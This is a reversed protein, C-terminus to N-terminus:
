EVAPSPALFSFRESARERGAEADALDIEALYAEELNPEVPDGALAEGPRALARVRIGELTRVRTTIRYRRSFEALDADSVVAHFVRGRAREGLAEPTGDFRLQGRHLLLIRSAAAEVDSAIHTSFLVIRQAAQELLIQRFRARSEVDLGTTPEDVVLIPPSGLLARAIGVRQRMGGSFDRVKRGAHESLGVAALLREIEAARARADDIGREAAWHDLFQAATLEPYANFEQPLFGIQRRYDVLNEPTVPVGRFLVDGRTPELLGTLIRLLTTKGAGNPGLLGVIGPTLEFRVASLARLGGRGGRGRYIRTVSRAELAPLGPEQWAPPHERRRVEEPHRWREVAGRALLLLAPALLVSSALAAAEAVAAVRLPTVWRLRLPDLGLTALGPGLLAPVGALLWRSQGRVSRLLWAPRVLPAVLTGELVAPLALALGAALGLVTLEDVRGLSASALPTAALLGLALPALAALARALSGVRCAAVAFLLLPVALGLAILRARDRQWLAPALSPRELDCGAPLALVALSRDLERRKDIRAQRANYPLHIDIPLVFRGSQRAIRPLILEERAALRTAPVIMGNGEPAALAPKGLQEALQPVRQPDDPVGAPLVALTPAPGPLAETAAPRPLTLPAPPVSSRRLAAALAAAEAPSTGPRPALVLVVSPRPLGSLWWDRVRLTTLREQVRDRGAELAALDASRLVFRYTQADEDTEAKDELDGGAGGRNAGSTNGRSVDQIDLAAGGADTYRLRTILRSLRDPRRDRPRVTVAIEGNGEWSESWFTAVEEAKALSAEVESVRREAETLTTGEPLRLRVILDAGAPTLGAPQPVLAPGFLTAALFAATAGALVVTGPDSLASRLPRALRRSLAGAARPGPAPPLGAALVAAAAALLFARAPGALLPGLDRSALAVTVPVVAAAAIATAALARWAGPSGGRPPAARLLGAPVAATVGLALAVLTTADLGVGALWFANAAAAVAAPVALALTAAGRRGAALGGALSAAALTLLAALVLRDVLARLPEAESWDIRGSLGAPLTELRRRLGRDVALPPAGETKWVLLARAPTGRDHIRIRPEEARARLVAVTGLPLASAGRTVTWRALGDRDAPAPPPAVMVPRTRGNREERGLVPVRLAREIEARLDASEAWPDSVGGWPVRPTARVSERRGGYVEVARVGPVARLEEAAAEASRDGAAQGSGAAGRDSIWILAFFGEQGASAPAITLRGPLRRRLGSLESELRAAKREPDTGPAFRVTLDAGDPRVEGAMGDVRGLSRIAAEVELVWDRAVEAPERSEDLTLGVSLEPFSGRPLYDLPLRALAVGGLVLLGLTLVLRAVPRDKRNPEPV